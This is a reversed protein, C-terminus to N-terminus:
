KQVLKTKYFVAYDDEVGLAENNKKFWFTDGEIHLLSSLAKIKNFPAGFKEGDKYIQFQDAPVNDPMILRISNEGVSETKAEQRESEKVGRNYQVLVRNDDMLWSGRVEAEGIKGGFMFGNQGEFSDREKGEDLYFPEIKLSFTDTLQFSENVWDYLYVIEDKSYSIVMKNGNLHNSPLMSSPQYGKGDLYRSFSELPIVAQISKAQRNVVKLAHQNEYLSDNSANLALLDYNIVTFYHPPDLLYMSRGYSKSFWYSIPEEREIKWVNEGEFNYAWIGKQGHAIITENDYFIPRDALTGPNDPIDGEKSFQKLIEGNKDTVIFETNRSNYLLIREQNPSFDSLLPTGLYDVILSDIIEFQFEINENNATKNTNDSSCSVFILLLSISILHLHNLM